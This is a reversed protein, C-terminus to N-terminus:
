RGGSVNLIAGTVYSAIDSLLWLISNAVEDPTGARKMPIFNKLKEPRNADGAHAHMETTILGPRVANVRIGFEAVEKALGITFTDIAGKSSAYDIFEHPSGLISAVSSLNVISGGNGNNKTSMRKVAERACLFSGFVNISFIEQLRQTDINEISSIPAIIGANNVLSTIKGLRNDIENFLSIVDEENSIDARICIAKSPNLDLSRLLKEASEKNNRYNICISYNELAALKAVAAGIGSSAGTILLVKNM